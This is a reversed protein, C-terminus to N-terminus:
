AGTMARAGSLALLDATIAFPMAEDADPWLDRDAPRLSLGDCVASTIRAKLVLDALSRAPTEHTHALAKDRREIAANRSALLPPLGVAQRAAATEAQWADWAAVIEDGRAQAQPDPRQGSLSPM